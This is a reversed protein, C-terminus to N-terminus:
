EGRRRSFLKPVCVLCLRLLLDNLEKMHPPKRVVVDVAAVIIGGTSTIGAEGTLMIVPTDPSEAKIAVAVQCGTIDPMGLDTIVVDFPETKLIATCFLDIGRKGNSAVKVRHGYLTLCDKLSELIRKDDDICLIHLSRKSPTPAKDGGAPKVPQPGPRSIESPTCPADRLRKSHIFESSPNM